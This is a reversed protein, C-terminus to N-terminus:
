NKEIVKSPICETSKAKLKAINVKPINGFESDELFYDVVKKLTKKKQRKKM